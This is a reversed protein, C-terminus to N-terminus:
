ETKEALVCGFGDRYTATQSYILPVSATVSRAEEDESLMVLGMGPLFDDKCSSLERGAIHRCSCATKAGYGTAASANGVLGEGFMYWGIGAAAVLVLAVSPWPFRRGNGSRKVPQRKATAM